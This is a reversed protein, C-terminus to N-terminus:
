SFAAAVGSSSASFGNKQSEEDSRALPDTSDESTGKM